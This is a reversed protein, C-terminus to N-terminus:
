NGPAGRGPNEAPPGAPPDSPGDGAGDPKQSQGPPDGPPGNEGRDDLVGKAVGSAQDPLGPLRAVVDVQELGTVAEVIPVGEVTVTGDADIEIRVVETDGDPAVILLLASGEHPDLLELHLAGSAESAVVLGVITGEEDVVFAQAEPPLDIASATSLLAAVALGILWTMTRQM